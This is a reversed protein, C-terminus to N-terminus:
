ISKQLSNVSCLNFRSWNAFFGFGCNYNEYFPFISPPTIPNQTRNSDPQYPHLKLLQCCGRLGMSNTLLENAHQGPKKLANKAEMDDDLYMNGTAETIM